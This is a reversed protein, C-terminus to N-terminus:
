KGNTRQVKDNRAPYLDTRTVLTPPFSGAQALRFLKSLTREALRAQETTVWGRGVAEEFEDRDLVTCQGTPSVWLDLFLDTIAYRHSGIQEMPLIMDCYYGTLRGRPDHIRGVDFPEGAYLFWVGTFEEGLVIAGGIEIPASPNLSHRFVTLDRDERLLESEILAPPGPPRLYEIVVSRL